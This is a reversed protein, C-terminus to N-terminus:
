PFIFSNHNSLNIWNTDCFSSKTFHHPGVNSCCELLMWVDNGSCYWHWECLLTTEHSKLCLQMSKSINNYNIHKILNKYVQREPSLVVFHVPLLTLLINPGANTCLIVAANDWCWDGINLLLVAVVNVFHQRFTTKVDTGLTPSCCQRMWWPEIHNQYGVINQVIPPHISPHISPNISPCISPGWIRCNWLRGIHDITFNTCLM